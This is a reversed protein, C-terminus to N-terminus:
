VPFSKWRLILWLLTCAVAERDGQAFTEGFDAKGLLNAQSPVTVGLYDRALDDSGYTDKLLIEPVSVRIVAGDMVPSGYDLKLEPLQAKLNLTNMSDTGKRKEALSRIKDCLYAATMFGSVPIGADEKRFCIAVHQEM